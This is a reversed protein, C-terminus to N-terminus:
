AVSGGARHLRPQVQGRVMPTRTPFTFTRQLFASSGASSDQLHIDLASALSQLREWSDFTDQTSELVANESETKKQDKEAAQAVKGLSGDASHGELLSPLKDEGIDMIKYGTILCSPSKPCERFTSEPNPKEKRSILAQENGGRM